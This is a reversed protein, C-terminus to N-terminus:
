ATILAPTPWSAPDRINKLQINLLIKENVVEDESSAMKEPARASSQTMDALDPDSIKERALDVDFSLRRALPTVHSQIQTFNL